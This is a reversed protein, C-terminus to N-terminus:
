HDPDNPAGDSDGASPGGGPIGRRPPPGLRRMGAGPSRNGLMPASGPHRRADRRRPSESGAALRLPETGTVDWADDREIYAQDVRDRPLCGARRRVQPAMEGVPLTTVSPAPLPAVAAGEPGPEAVGQYANGATFVPGTQLLRLASNAKGGASRAWSSLTFLSAVLNGSSEAEFRAGWSTWDEVIVNRVDALVHDSVLPGRAWQKMVWSHHISVNTTEKYKLFLSRTNGALFCWQVTVDHAGYGISIGDDGAGTSSVHSFVVNYATADQARLNDYGDRLRIDRVIVDHGNVEILNAYGGGGVYLTAGNGEVTVFDGELQPLHTTIRIPETTEFRIIAHGSKAATFAARVAEETPERVRLVRGGEGGPTSSGFGESPEADPPGDPRELPSDDGVTITVEASARKGGATVTVRARYVGATDYVHEIGAGTEPLEGPPPLMPMPAPVDCRGDALRALARDIDASTGNLDPLNPFGGAVAQSVSERSWQLATAYRECGAVGGVEHFLYIGGLDHAIKQLYWRAVRDIRDTGHTSIPGPTEIVTLPVFGLAVTVYASVAAEYHGANRTTKAADYGDRGALARGPDDGPAFPTSPTGDGFEWSFTLPAGDPATSASADFTVRLPPTGRLTSAMLRAVPSGGGGGGGGPPPTPEAVLAPAGPGTGADDPVWLRREDWGEETNRYVRSRAQGDTVVLDLHGPDWGARREWRPARVSGANRFALVRDGDDGVMADPVGDGDLDAFAPVANGRPVEALDASPARLWPFRGDRTTYAFSRGTPLGVYLVAAQACTAWAVLVVLGAGAAVRPAGCTTPSM